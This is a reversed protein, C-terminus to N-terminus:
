YGSPLRAVRFRFPAARGTISSPPPTSEGNCIHPQRKQGLSPGLWPWPPHPGSHRDRRATPHLCPWPVTTARPFTFSTPPRFPDCHHLHHPLDHPTQAVSALHLAPSPMSDPSWPFLARTTWVRTETDLADPQREHHGISPGHQQVGLRVPFPRTPRGDHLPRVLKMAGCRHSVGQSRLPFLSRHCGASLRNRPPPVTPHLTAAFLAAVLCPDLNRERRNRLCVLGQTVLPDHAPTPLGATFLRRKQRPCSRAGRLPTPTQASRLSDPSPLSREQPWRRDLSAAHSKCAVVECHLVDTLCWVCLTNDAEGPLAFEM